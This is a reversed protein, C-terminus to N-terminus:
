IKGQELHPEFPTENKLVGYVIHLMKRMAAGIAAMKSKKRSLLNQYFNKIIPNHRIAVLAPMYMASRLSADGKKSLVARSKISTGSQRTRPTLGAFAAMKKASDFKEINGFYAIIKGISVSGIGPITALLQSKKKLEKNDNIIQEIHSKARSIQSDLNKIHSRIAGALSKCSAELRNSEQLQMAKLNELRQVWQKLEIQWKPDPQWTSPNIAKCFRAIVQSDAKDTKNRALEGKAFGNICAPNVVSVKYGAEYFFNALPYGYIGTAELCIHPKEKYPKLWCLLKKFGDTSNIFSKCKMRSNILLATDFTKKSIDIGLVTEQM